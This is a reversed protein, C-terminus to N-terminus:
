PQQETESGDSLRTPPGGPNVWAGRDPLGALWAKEVTVWDILSRNVSRALNLTGAGWIMYHEGGGPQENFIISAARGYGCSVNRIPDIKTTFPNTHDADCRSVKTWHVGDDSRSIVTGIYTTGISSATLWYVGTEQMGRQLWVALLALLM